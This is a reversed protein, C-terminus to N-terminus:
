FVLHQFLLVSFYNPSNTCMQSSETWCLATTCACVAGPAVVSTNGGWAGRGAEWLGPQQTEAFDFACGQDSVPMTRLAESAAPVCRILETRCLLCVLCQVRSSENLRRLQGIILTSTNNDADGNVSSSFSTFKGLPVRGTTLASVPVPEARCDLLKAVMSYQHCAKSDTGNVHITQQRVRPFKKDAPAM